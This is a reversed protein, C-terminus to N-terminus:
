GNWFHELFVHSEEFLERLPDLVVIGIRVLNINGGVLAHLRPLVRLRHTIREVGFLM